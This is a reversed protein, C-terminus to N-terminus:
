SPSPRRGACSRPWSTSRGSTSARVHGRDAPGARRAPQAPVRTHEILGDHMRQVVVAAELLDGRHKPFLKGKSPEGVQHGARGIRQLGRSVAGPSEVQIVLDVAGMDIGLELSSTAVLGRLTAASSSTRSRCASSARCRATTPRSWRAARSPRGARPRPQGTRARSRGARQPPHGAARGPPPRQRLDADLPAAPGARAAAPPDVALHQTPGPRGRGPREVADDILEGLTAWTRSRCSWRSRSRSACAPTSSPSPRCRRGVGAATPAQSAASSAPSRTSRGSPPRCASASPRASACPGRAARPQPGPARGAQHPGARPDRRRDGGRRQALTERAASTLMLYLSEPTTILLDPPTRVLKRREDAPPTAPACASTPAHFELGLREAALGIGVLPARLNKEVDVALARLPSLYLLRTRRESTTPRRSPQGAPRPGVPVRGPDQGLRHPGPDAHARGVAIAPWGQAQAATPEAFTTSFWARVAPSFPELPDALERTWVSGALHSSDRCSHVNSVGATCRTCGHRPQDRHRRGYCEGYVRDHRGVLRGLVVRGELLVALRDELQALVVDVDDLGADGLPEVHGPRRHGLHDVAHLLLAQDGDVAGDAEGVVAEAQGLAHHAAVAQGLAEQGVDETERPGVGVGLGALPLM